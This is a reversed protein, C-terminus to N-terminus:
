KQHLSCKKQYKSVIIWSLRFFGDISVSISVLLLYLLSSIHAQTDPMDFIVVSETKESVDFSWQM